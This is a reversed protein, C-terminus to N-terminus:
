PQPAIAEGGNPTVGASWSQISIGPTIMSVHGDGFLMQVGVSGFPYLNFVQQQSRVLGAVPPQFYENPDGSIMHCDGLWWQGYEDDWTQTPDNCNCGFFPVGEPPSDTTAWMNIGQDQAGNEGQIGWDKYSMKQDGTVMHKEVVFYTNSTGDSIGTIKQTGAGANSWAVDWVSQTGGSTRNGFVRANPAYSVLTMQYVQDNNVYPWQWNVQSYPSDDMPAQYTKVPTSGVLLNPNDTRTGMVFYPYGSISNHLNAQEIYPLLCYFFTTKDGGYNPPSPLYPGNYVPAGQNQMVLIPPFCGVSDHMNHLALGIQKLNNASQLRAASERVKQVAPLLLGVLIGIIAIVVLLEILTFGRRLSRLSSRM